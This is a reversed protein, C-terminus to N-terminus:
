GSYHPLLTTKKHFFLTKVFQKYFAAQNLGPFASRGQNEGALDDNLVMRHILDTGADGDIGINAELPPSM